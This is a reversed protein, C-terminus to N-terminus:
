WCYDRHLRDHHLLMENYPMDEDEEELMVNFEDMKQIVKRNCHELDDAVKYM